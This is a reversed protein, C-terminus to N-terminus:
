SRCNRLREFFEQIIQRCQDELVGSTVELRHNFREDQVLNLLSDVAGAKPDKAGYVLRKVRGNILAGACMPCPEITCYLTTEELRWDGMHQSAERIAIIEAHSTPDDTTERLNHGRGIIQGDLVVVAGIPVEGKDFAKRAEVLAESMYLEDQKLTM